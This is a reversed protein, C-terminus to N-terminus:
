EENKSNLITRIKKLTYTNRIKGRLFIFDKYFTEKLYRLKGGDVCASSWVSLLIKPDQQFHQKLNKKGALARQSMLM